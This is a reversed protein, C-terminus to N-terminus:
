QPYPTPHTIFIGCIQMQETSRHEAARDSIARLEIEFQLKPPM